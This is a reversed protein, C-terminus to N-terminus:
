GLEKNRIFNLQTFVTITGIVLVVTAAYQFVILARNLILSIPSPSMKTKLLSIPNLRSIFIAPYLGSSLTGVLFIGVLLLGDDWNFSISSPLDILVKLLPLGAQIFALSICVAIFNILASDILLQTVLQSRSSGTVKR